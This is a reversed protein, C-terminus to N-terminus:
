LRYGADKFEKRVNEMREAESKKLLDPVRELSDITDKFLQKSLSLIFQEEERSRTEDKLRALLVEFSDSGLNQALKSALEKAESESLKLPLEKSGFEGSSLQPLYEKTKRMLVVYSAFAHFEASTVKDALTPEKSVPSFGTKFAEISELRTIFQELSKEMDSSVRKAATAREAFVKADESSIKQLLTEAIEERTDFETKADTLRKFSEKDDENVVKAIANIARILNSMRLRETEAKVQIIDKIDSAIDPYERLNSDVSSSISSSAKSYIDAKDSGPQGILSLSAALLSKDGLKALSRVQQGNLITIARGHPLNAPSISRFDSEYQRIASSAQSIKSDLESMEDASKAAKRKEQLDKLSKRTSLFKRSLKNYVGSQKLVYAILLARKDKEAPLSKVMETYEKPEMYKEATKLTTKLSRSLALGALMKSTSPLGFSPTSFKYSKPSPPGKYKPTTVDFASMPRRGSAYMAAALIGLVIFVLAWSADVLQGFPPTQSVCYVTPAMSEVLSSNGKFSSVISGCGFSSIAAKCFADGNQNTTKNECLSVNRDATEFFFSVNAGVVPKVGYFDQIQKAPISGSKISDIMQQSTVSNSQISILHATIVVSNQTENDTRFSIDMATSDKQIEAIVVASVFLLLVASLLLRIRLVGAGAAM